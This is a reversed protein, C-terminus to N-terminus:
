QFVVSPAASAVATTETRLEVQSAADDCSIDGEFTEIAVEGEVGTVAVDGRSVSVDLSAHRPASIRVTGSCAEEGRWGARGTVSVKGGSQGVSYEPNGGRCILDVEVRTEEHDTGTVIVDGSDLDVVLDDVRGDFIFSQSARNAACGSALILSGALLAILAIVRPGKGTAGRTETETRTNRTTMAQM